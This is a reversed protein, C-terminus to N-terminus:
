FFAVDRNVYLAVPPLGPDAGFNFSWVSYDGYQSVDGEHAMVPASSAVTALAITVASFLKKM